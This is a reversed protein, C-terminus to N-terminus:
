EIEHAIAIDPFTNCAHLAVLLNETILIGTDVEDSTDEFTTQNGQYKQKEQDDDGLGNQLDAIQLRIGM